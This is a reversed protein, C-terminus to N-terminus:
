EVKVYTVTETDVEFDDAEEKYVNTYTATAGEGALSITYIPSGNEEGTQTKETVIMARKIM